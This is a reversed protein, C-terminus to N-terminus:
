LEHLAVALETMLNGHTLMCGKPRGTTGSTYIITALDLPTATTRRSELEADTVQDGRRTLEDVAGGDISWVHRLGELQFRVEAVRAVHAPGETVVACAGSDGLIWGVQEASSTEYVPVGVAGAFWIAYDFLTWEYRTRSMLGVRDGPQVGAAMLGKAVARVELLFQAASIDQWTESGSRRSIAAADPALAANRVVDDTLNGTTPLGAVLPGSMPTSFERV